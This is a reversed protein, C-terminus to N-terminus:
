SATIYPKTGERSTAQMQSVGGKRGRWGTKEIDALAQIEARKQDKKEEQQQKRSKLKLQSMADADDDSDELLLRQPIKRKRTAAECGTSELENPGNPLLGDLTEQLQVRSELHFSNSIHKCYSLSNM